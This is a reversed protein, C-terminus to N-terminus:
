PRASAYYEVRAELRGILAALGPAFAFLILILAWITGERELVDLARM